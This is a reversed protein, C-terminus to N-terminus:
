EESVFVSESYQNAFKTCLTYLASKCYQMEHFQPYLVYPPSATHKWWCILLKGKGELTTLMNWTLLRVIIVKKHKPFNVSGVQKVSMKVKSAWFSRSSSHLSKCFQSCFIVQRLLHDPGKPWSTFPSMELWSHHVSTFVTLAPVLFCVEWDVVICM